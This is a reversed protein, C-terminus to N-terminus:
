GQRPHKVPPLWLIQRMPMALAENHPVFPCPIIRPHRGPVLLYHGCANRSQYIVAYPTGLQHVIVLYRLSDSYNSIRSVSAATLQRHALCSRDDGMRGLLVIRM